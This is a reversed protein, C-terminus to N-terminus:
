RIQAGTKVRLVKEELDDLFFEMELAEGPTGDQFMVSRLSQRVKVKGGERVVKFVGQTFGVISFHEVVDPVRKLFLVVDEGLRFRPAGPVLQGKDGVEGGPVTIVVIKDADGAIVRQVEITVDTVIRRFSSRHDFRSEMKAVTGFVVVESQLALDELGMHELILAKAPVSLVTVLLLSLLVQRKM